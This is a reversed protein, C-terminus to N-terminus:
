YARASATATLTVGDMWPLLAELGFMPYAVTSVTVTATHGDTTAADVLWTETLQSRRAATDVRAQAASHVERDALAIARDDQPAPVDGAYYRALDMADAAELALEDAVHALRVRQLHLHTAASVVLVLALVLVTFGLVLVLVTGADDRRLRALRATWQLRAAPTVHTM